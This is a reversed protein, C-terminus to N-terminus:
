VLQSPTGWRDSTSLMLSFRVRNSLPHSFLLSRLWADSVAAAEARTSTNEVDLPHVLVEDVFRPAQTVLQKKHEDPVGGSIQVCAEADFGPPM